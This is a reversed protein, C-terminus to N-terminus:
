AFSVKWMATAVERSSRRSGWRDLDDYGSGYRLLKLTTSRFMARWGHSAETVATTVDCHKHTEVYDAARCLIDSHVKGM